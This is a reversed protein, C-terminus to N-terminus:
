RRRNGKTVATSPTAVPQGITGAAQQRRSNSVLTRARNRAHVLHSRVRGITKAASMAGMGRSAYIMSALYTDWNALLNTKQEHIAAHRGDAAIQLLSLDFSSQDHPSHFDNPSCNIKILETLDHCDIVSTPCQFRRAIAFDALAPSYCDSILDYFKNGLYVFAEEKELSWSKLSSQLELNTFITIASVTPNLNAPINQINPPQSLLYLGRRINSATQNGGIMLCVEVWSNLYVRWHNLVEPLNSHCIANRGKIAELINRKVATKTKGNTNLFNPLTQRKKIAYLFGQSDKVIKNKKTLLGHSGLFRELDGSMMILFPFIKKALRKAEAEDSETLKIHVVQFKFSSNRNM